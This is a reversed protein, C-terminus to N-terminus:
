SRCPRLKENNKEGTIRYDNEYPYEEISENEKRNKKKKNNEKENNDKYKQCKQKNKKFGLQGMLVTM